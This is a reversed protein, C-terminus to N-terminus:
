LISASQPDVGVGGTLETLRQLVVIMAEADEDDSDATLEEFHFVDLRADYQDLTALKKRDAETLTFQRFDEKLEDIQETVDEGEVYSIDM